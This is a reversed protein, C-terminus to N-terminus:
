PFPLSTMKRKRNPLEQWGHFSLSFLLFEAFHWNSASRIQWFFSKVTLSAWIYIHWNVSEFSKSQSIELQRREGPQSCNAALASLIIQGRGEAHRCDTVTRWSSNTALLTENHGLGDWEKTVNFIWWFLKNPREEGVCSLALSAFMKLSFWLSAMPNSSVFEVQFCCILIFM